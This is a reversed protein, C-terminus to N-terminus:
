LAILTNGATINRAFRAFVGFCVIYFRTQINNQKIISTESTEKKNKSQIM